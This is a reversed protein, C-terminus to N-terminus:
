AASIGGNVSIVQGTLHASGDGCLFLALQALDDPTPLGLEARAAATKARTAIPSAMVQEYVPTESVFSSSICNVRIKDVATELALSRVFMMIAARTAGVMTQNPAAIRGSDSAFAVISGGKGGALAPLAAHCLNLLAGLSAELYLSFGCPDMEIFRGSMDPVMANACNVVIDLRDHTHCIGDILKRCETPRV